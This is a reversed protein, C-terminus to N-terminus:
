ATTDGSTTKACDKTETAKKEATEKEIAKKEAVKKEAAKKAVWDAYKSVPMGPLFDIYHGSPHEDAPPPGLQRSESAATAIPTKERERDKEEQRKVEAAEQDLAAQLQQDTLLLFEDGDLDLREFAELVGLDREEVDQRGKMLYSSIMQMKEPNGKVGRTSGNRMGIMELVEPDRKRVALKEPEAEPTEELSCSEVPEEGSSFFAEWNDMTWKDYVKAQEAELVLKCKKLATATIGAVAEKEDDQDPEVKKDGWLAKRHEWLVRDRIVELVLGSRIQDRLKKIFGFKWGWYLWIMQNLDHTVEDIDEFPKMPMRDFIKDPFGCSLNLAELDLYEFIYMFEHAMIRDMTEGNELFEPPPDPKCNAYYRVKLAGPEGPGPEESRRLKKDGRNVLLQPKSHEKLYTETLNLHIPCESEKVKAAPTKRRYAVKIKRPTPQAPTTSPAPKELEPEPTTPMAPKEPEPEPVPSPSKPRSPTVPPPDESSTPVPSPLAQLPFSTLHFKVIYDIMQKKGKSSLYWKNEWYVKRIFNVKKKRQWGVKTLSFKDLGNEENFKSVALNIEDMKAEFEALAPPLMLEPIVLHHQPYAKSLARAFNLAGGVGEMTISPIEKDFLFASIRLPTQSDTMLKCVEQLVEMATGDVFTFDMPLSAEDKKDYALWIKEVQGNGVVVHVVGELRRECFVREYNPMEAICSSLSVLQPMGKGVLRPQIVLVEM